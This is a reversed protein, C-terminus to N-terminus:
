FLGNFYMPTHNIHHHHPQLWVVVMNVVCWHIKISKKLLQLKLLCSNICERIISHSCRFM